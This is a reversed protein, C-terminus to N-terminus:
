RWCWWGPGTRRGRCGSPGATPLSGSFCCRFWRGSRSRCSSSRLFNDINQSKFWFVDSPQDAPFKGNYKFRTGQKKRVYWFLEIAGYFVFIAAANVAYLWLAWAWSLTQLTTVDPVVYAWWILATAMHFANWPWLYDPVWALVKPLSFPLRWMPPLDLPANPAWDGRKNRTGFQLDDM